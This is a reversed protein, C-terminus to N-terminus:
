LYQGMGLHIIFIPYGWKLMKFCQYDNIQEREQGKRIEALKSLAGQVGLQPVGKHCGRLGKHRAHDVHRGEGKAIARAKPPDKPCRLIM